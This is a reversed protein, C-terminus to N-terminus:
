RAAELEALLRDLDFAQGSGPETLLRRQMKMLAPWMQPPVSMYYPATLTEAGQVLAMGQRVTAPITEDDAAVFIPAYLGTAAVDSLLLARGEASALLRAFALAADRQPAAAPVMHGIAMVVEAPPQTADLIPFPVFGLASRQEQPLAALFAPGTLVMAARPSLSAPPAVAALADEIGMSESRELFYGKEVLSAWLEFVPRLRPDDFPMDGALVEQHFIPGNLRLNLADFWLTGMFPDAGSIAFPTVGNLWLTESTQVLDDWTAPPQLGYLEFIQKHYYLGTWNYGAPLYYQRGERGSLTRLNAALGADIGTEEWLDTLDTLAGGAMASDLFQGPTILMLDPATADTLYSEPPRNYEEVAITIHPNATEYQEILAQEAADLGTFTVYRLSIPEPIPTPEAGGGCGALLAVALAFVPVCRALRTRLLPLLGRSQKESMQMRRVM